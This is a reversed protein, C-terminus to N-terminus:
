EVRGSGKQANQRWGGGQGWGGGDQQQKLLYELGQKISDELLAPDKAPAAPQEQPAMKKPAVKRRVAREEANMPLAFAAMALAALPIRFPNQWRSSLPRALPNTKM